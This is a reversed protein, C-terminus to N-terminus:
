KTNYLLFYIQDTLLSPKNPWLHQSGPRAQKLRILLHLHKEYEQANSLSILVLSAGFTRCVLNNSQYVKM